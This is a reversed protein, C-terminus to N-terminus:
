SRADSRPRDPDAGAPEDWVNAPLNVVIPEPTSRVVVWRVPTDLSRNSEMHRLWPPVHLFDGARAIGSFEGREGWRLHATGELVFAITEQAGHHHIDIRTGPAISFLGAWLGTAIGRSRTIAALRESGATQATAGDFADPRVISISGPGISGPDPM